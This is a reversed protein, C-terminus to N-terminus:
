GGRILLGRRGVAIFSAVLVLAYCATLIDLPQPGAVYGVHAVMAWGGLVVLVLGYTIAGAELNMALMLEDSGRYAKIAFWTGILLGGAGIGLAASAALPGVPASLALGLLAVGWLLMAIGTPVFQSQSERIEDADEVNLIKSGLSPSLSGALLAAAVIIYLAAILGAIEVSPPLEDLGRAETYNGIVEGAGYGALAGIAMGSVLQVLLKRWKFPRRPTEIESTM